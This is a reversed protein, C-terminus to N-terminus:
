DAIRLAVAPRIKSASRAPFAAVVLSFVLSISGLILIMNWPVAFPVDFDEAFSSTLVNRATIVGLFVGVAIGEVAVLGAEGMFARRVTGSGFGLARLVGIARRRERVSRIMVVGLGVIGVILGLALYGQMLGFFQTNLRLIDRIMKEYGDARLGLETNAAELTGTVTTVGADDNTQVLWATLGSATFQNQLARRQIVAGRFTLVSQGFAVVRRESIAGSVPDTMEITQGLAAEFDSPPGQQGAEMDESLIVLSGDNMVADLAADESPYAPEWESLTVKVSDRLQADLGFVSTFDETDAGSESLKVPATEIGVASEVGPVGTLDRERAPTAQNTRVYIDYGSSERRLFGDTNLQNVFSITTILVLTFVILSYMIMTMATRFRKAVPYTTALRAALGRRPSSRALFRVGNSLVEQNQSLLVVAAFTTIIGHIVFVFPSEVREFLDTIVTPLLMGWALLAGSLISALPRRSIFRSLLPYLGVAILAPGILASAAEHSLIGSAALLAGMVVSLSGLVLSRMRAKADRTVELDRIAAIINIRSVRLSTLFITLIAIAFGVLMGALLSEGRLVLDVTLDREGFASGQAFIGAAVRIIAAGVGVGAVTGLIAAAFAYYGGELAFGRVLDARRMGVSRMMGLQSRRETALMVFINVLLLIGSVVAFSGIVLFLQSISDAGREAQDLGMRKLDFIDVGDTGLLDRIEGDVIYTWRVGSQADGSNSVWLQTTPGVPASGGKALRGLAGEALYLNRGYNYEAFGDGDIIREVTYTSTTGYVLLDIQDGPQLELEDALKRSVVVENDALPQGALPQPTEGFEELQSVDLAYLSTDPIAFGPNLASRTTGDAAETMVAGDVHDLRRLEDLRAEARNAATATTLQVQEDVEGLTEYVMTTFSGTLSDSTIFSGTILATGLISGAIILASEAPRRVFQRTAMRRLYARRVAVWALAVGALVSVVLGFPLFGRSM